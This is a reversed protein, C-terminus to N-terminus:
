NKSWFVALLGYLIGSAAGVQAMYEPTIALGFIAGLALSLGKWTSSQEYWKKEM